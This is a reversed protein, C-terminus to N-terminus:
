EKEPPFFGREEETKEYSYSRWNGLTTDDMIVDLTDTEINYYSDAWLTQEVEYLFHFDYNPDTSRLLDVGGGLLRKHIDWYVYREFRNNMIDMLIFRFPAKDDSDPADRTERYYAYDFGILYSFSISTKMMKPTNFLYEVTGEKADLIFIPYNDGKKYYGFLMKKRDQTFELSGWYVNSWKGLVRLEGSRHNKAYVTLEKKDYRYSLKENIGLPVFNYSYDLYVDDSEFPMFSESDGFAYLHFSLLIFLIWAFKRHNM